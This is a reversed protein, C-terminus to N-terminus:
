PVSNTGEIREIIAMKRVSKRFIFLKIQDSLLAFVNLVIDQVTIHLVFDPITFCQNELIIDDPTVERNHLIM